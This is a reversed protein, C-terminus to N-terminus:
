ALDTKMKQFGRRRRQRLSNLTLGHREMLIKRVEADIRYSREGNADFSEFELSVLLIERNVPDLSDIARRVREIDPTVQPEVEDSDVVEPLRESFAAYALRESKESELLRLVRHRVVAGLWLRVAEEPSRGPTETEGFRTALDTTWLEEFIDQLLDEALAARAFDSPLDLQSAAQYCLRYLHECHQRHFATFAAEAEEPDSKRFETGFLVLLEDPDYDEPPAPLTM